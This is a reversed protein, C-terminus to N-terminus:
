PLSITDILVTNPGDQAADAVAGETLPLRDHTAMDYLGMILQYNGKPLNAPLAVPLPVAIQRGPQWTSTAPADGGPAVDVQAVRRGQTDLLHLFLQYDAAPTARVDWAATVILHGPARAITVGRLRLADGWRAGIAREFPRPLQYIRAYEIGHITITQLPLTQQIADYVPPNAARQISELYVVAYNAPGDNLETVDKVPVPLFPQLTPGLASLVPGHRIDPQARLYTGVQDMGEGWGILLMRQAIAGGGLLPNYYSLYYPHYWALNMVLFVFFLSCLVFSVVRHKTSQAKHNTSIRRLADFLGVLGAAALVEIAPWTPLVYRDFKKPGLTMVLTWFLAFAGLAILVRQEGSWRGVVFSPVGGAGGRMTPSPPTIPRRLALPLTLLGLMTVPTMRFLDAIPYFLPGPNAVARGLFFQGAGNPRGGNSLIEDLYNRLAGVPDVWLAPWLLVVVAAAAALWLLYRPLVIRLRRGIVAWRRYAVRIASRHDTPPPGDETTLAFLLLGASPLLILAPGKTLLALGACVGSGILAWRGGVVGGAGRRQRTSPSTHDAATALLLLLSFIVFATLLADLHLLRAHAIMYPSTAWLLAAVLATAPVLLRRLLAYGAPILLAQILASPLRLWALHELPSRGIAWRQETAMHELALGLSGLWMLTVGPHGTQMTAAWRGSAIADSFRETRAIWHYAEDTTIFDALGLIRPFLAIAGLLAALLAPSGVVWARRAAQPAIPAQDVKM